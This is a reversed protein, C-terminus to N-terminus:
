ERTHDPYLAVFLSFPEAAMDTERSAYEDMLSQIRNGLEALDAASLRIGLRSLKAGDGQVLSMEALFAEIMARASAAAGAEGISLNWSKGTARYPVERSGRPGRRVEEAVLFGTTVLKRVHHLTTAPNADLRAAIEKNTM